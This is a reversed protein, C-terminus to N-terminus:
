EYKIKKRFDRRKSRTKFNFFLGRERQSLTLTLSSRSLVVSKLSAIWAAM